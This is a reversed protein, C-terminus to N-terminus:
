SSQKQMETEIVDLPPPQHVTKAFTVYYGDLDQIAFLRDGWVETKIEEVIPVKANKVQEYHADIDYDSPYIMLVVGNGRGTLDSSDQSLGVQTDGYKVFGFTNEGEKGQMTLTSSFGLKEMYFKRTADYNKVALIPLIM